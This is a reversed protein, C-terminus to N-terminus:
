IFLTFNIKTIKNYVACILNYLISISPLTKKHLVFNATQFVFQENGWGTNEATLTRNHRNTMPHLQIWEDIFSTNACCARGRANYDALWLKPSQQLFECRDGM